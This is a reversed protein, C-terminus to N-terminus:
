CYFYGRRVRPAVIDMAFNITPANAISTGVGFGDVPCNKLREIADEDILGSVFIKVDKYGRIDLEWRVENIM